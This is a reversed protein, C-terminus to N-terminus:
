PDNKTIGFLRQLKDLPQYKNEDLNKCVREIAKSFIYDINENTKASVEFYELGYCDTFEQADENTVQPAETDNKNGIIFLLRYDNHNNYNFNEIYENL